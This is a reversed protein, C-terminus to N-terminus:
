IETFIKLGMEAFSKKISELNISVRHTHMHTHKLQMTRILWLYILEVSINGRLEEEDAINEDEEEVM